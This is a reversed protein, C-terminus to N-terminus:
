YAHRKNLEKIQNKTYKRIMDGIKDPDESGDRRTMYKMARKLTYEFAMEEEHELSAGIEVDENLILKDSTVDPHYVVQYAKLDLGIMTWNMDFEETIQEVGQYGSRHILDIKLYDKKGKKKDIDIHIFGKTLKGEFKVIDVKGLEAMKEALADYIVENVCYIDVDGFEKSFGGVASAFGGCVFTNAEYGYLFDRVAELQDACWKPPNIPTCIYDEASDKYSKLNKDGFFWM